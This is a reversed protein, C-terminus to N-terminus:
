DCLTIMDPNFQRMRPLSNCHVKGYYDKNEIKWVAKSSVFCIYTNSSERRDNKTESIAPSQLPSWSCLSHEKLGEELLPASSNLSISRRCCSFLIEWGGRIIIIVLIAANWQSHPFPSPINDQKDNPRDCGGRIIIITSQSNM